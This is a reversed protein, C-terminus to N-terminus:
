NSEISGSTPSGALTPPSLLFGWLGLVGLSSGLFVPADEDFGSIQELVEGASFPLEPLDNVLSALDLFKLRTDTPYRELFKRLERATMSRMKYKM